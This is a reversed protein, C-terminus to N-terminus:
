KTRPNLKKSFKYFFVNFPYPLLSRFFPVIIGIYAIFNAKVMMNGRLGVKFRHWGVKVNNKRINEANFRYYLLPEPINSFRLGAKLCRYWLEYDDQRPGSNPNYSGVRIIADKRFMVSPHIMPCAWILQKIKDEQIPVKLLELENGLDDITLAWSGVIDLYTNIKIFNILKEFRDNRCIDDSDMRAVWDYQCHRLGENLAKSLGNNQSFEVIKLTNKFEIKWFSIVSELDTNLPGDKVLV